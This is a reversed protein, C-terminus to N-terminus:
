GSRRGTERIRKGRDYVRCRDPRQDWRLYLPISVGCLADPEDRNVLHM